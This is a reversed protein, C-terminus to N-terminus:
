YMFHNQLSFMVQRNCKMCPKRSEILLWWDHINEEFLADYASTQRRGLQTDTRYSQILSKLLRLFLNWDEPVNRWTSHHVSASTEFYPPTKQKMTLCNLSVEQFYKIMLLVTRFGQIVWGESVLASKM